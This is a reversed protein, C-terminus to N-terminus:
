VGFHPSQTFRDPGNRASDTNVTVARGASDTATVSIASADIDFQGTMNIEFYGGDQIVASGSGNQGSASVTNGKRLTGGALGSLIRSGRPRNLRLTPTTNDLLTM